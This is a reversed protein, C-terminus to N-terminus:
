GAKGSLSVVIGAVVLLMGMFFRLTLPEKFFLSAFVPVILFSLSMFVYAVTLPVQRLVSVWVLTACGYLAVAVLLVSAASPAFLSQALNAREAAIKFLIQGGAIALVTFLLGILPLLKM